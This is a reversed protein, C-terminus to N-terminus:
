YLTAAFLINTYFHVEYVQKYIYLITCSLGLGDGMSTIKLVIM